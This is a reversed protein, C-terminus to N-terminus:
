NFKELVQGLQYYRFLRLFLYLVNKSTDEINNRVKLAHKRSVGSGESIALLQNIDSAKELKDDTFPTKIGLEKRQVQLSAFAAEIIKNRKSDYRKIQVNEDIDSDTLTTKVEPSVTSSITNFRLLSSYVSTNKSTRIVRTLM